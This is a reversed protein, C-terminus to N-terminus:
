VVQFGDPTGTGSLVGTLSFDGVGAANIGGLNTVTTGATGGVNLTGAFTLTGNVSNIRSNRITATPSLALPSIASRLTGSLTNNGLSLIASGRDGIPGRGEFDVDRALTFGAASGDLLLSGGGFGIMTTNLPTNNTTTIAVTGTGGLAGGNSIILTGNAITTTGTYNNSANALRLSGGGTKRFGDTGSILSDVRASEGLNVQIGAASGALTIAGGSLSYGSRLFSLRNATVGGADVNVATAVPVAYPLTPFAATFIANSFNDNPWALDASLDWWNLLSADWTGAGGLGAGDTGNGGATADADWYFDVAAAPGSSFGILLVAFAAFVKRRLFVNFRTYASM